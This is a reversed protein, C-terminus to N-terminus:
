ALCPRELSEAGEGGEQFLSVKLEHSHHTPQAYTRLEYIRTASKAMSEPVGVRPFAPMTRLLSTELRSFPPQNVSANLFPTGAKLYDQDEALHADLTALTEVSPGVLLLWKGSFGEPGFWTNFVGVSTIGLRNAAPILADRFYDDCLKADGVPALSYHRIQIFQQAPKADSQTVPSADATGGLALTSAMLSSGLFERREM